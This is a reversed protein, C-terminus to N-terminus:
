RYHTVASVIRSKSCATGFAGGLHLYEDSQSRGVDARFKKYNKEEDEVFFVSYERFAAIRANLLRLVCVHSFPM